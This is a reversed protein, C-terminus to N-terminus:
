DSVDSEETEIYNDLKNDTGNNSKVTERTFQSHDVPPHMPDLKTRLEAMTVLIAEETRITRSGQQPCTNLYQNFVLSADDIELNADTEIAEEIGSLGGFVVLAHKYKLSKTEIKDVLTGKDSTGISLDYGEPYPCKSFIESLSSALRVSYGWYIGTESRPLSPPVIIGKLKKPNDQNPLIKVTVRFGTSLVKDVRVDNLLGVNVQM